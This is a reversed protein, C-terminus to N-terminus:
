SLGKRGFSLSMLLNAVPQRATRSNAVRENGNPLPATPLNRRIPRRRYKQAEKFTRHGTVAMIEKDSCGAEALANAANCRPDHATYGAAGIQPTAATIM